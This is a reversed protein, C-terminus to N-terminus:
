KNIVYIGFTGGSLIRKKVEHLGSDDILRPLGGFRMFHRFNRFHNRGAALEAFFIIIKSIWGKLQKVPGPQFDILIIRGDNKLIRKAEQLINLRIDHDMEHLVTMCIILDFMDDSFPMQKSNSLRLDANEGLKLRAEKIMAASTDLGYVRCNMDQYMKLHSGTGCGIDLVHMGDNVPHMKLAAKRLGHNMPEFIADYWKAINKYPDKL